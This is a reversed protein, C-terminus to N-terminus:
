GRDINSSTKRCLVPISPHSFLRVFSSSEFCLPILLFLLRKLRKTDLSKNRAGKTTRCRHKRSFSKLEANRTTASFICRLPLDPHLVRDHNGDETCFVRDPLVYFGQKVLSTYGMPFIIANKDQVVPRGVPSLLDSIIAISINYTLPYSM